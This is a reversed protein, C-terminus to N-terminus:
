WTKFLRKSTWNGRKERKM